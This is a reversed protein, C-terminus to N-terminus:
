RTAESFMFKGLYMPHSKPPVTKTNDIPYPGQVATPFGWIDGNRMDVAVKGYVQATGDPKRLTAYGPELYFPYAESAQAQVPAPHVIPRLAIMGLLVAIVILMAKTFRDLRM